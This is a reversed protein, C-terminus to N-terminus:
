SFCCYVATTVQTSAFPTQRTTCNSVCVDCRQHNIRWTQPCHNSWSPPLVLLPSSHFPELPLLVPSRPVKAVWQSFYLSTCSLLPCILQPSPLVLPLSLSPPPCTCPFPTLFSSHFNRISLLIYTLDLNRRYSHLNHREALSALRVFCYLPLLARCLWSPRCACTSAVSWGLLMAPTKRSRLSSLSMQLLIRGGVLPTSFRTILTAYDNRFM